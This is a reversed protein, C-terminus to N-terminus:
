QTRVEMACFFPQFSGYGNYFNDSGGGNMGAAWGLTYTGAALPVTMRDCDHVGLTSGTAPSTVCSPNGFGAPIANNVWFTSPSSTTNGGHNGFAWMRIRSNQAITITATATFVNPTPNVPILATPSPYVCTSSAVSTTGGSAATTSTTGDAWKIGAAAMNLPGGLTVSGATVTFTTGGVSFASGQVTMSGQIIGQGGITLNGSDSVDAYASGAFCILALLMNM